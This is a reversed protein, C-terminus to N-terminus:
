VSALSSGMSASASSRAPAVDRALIRTTSSSCRIRRNTTRPSWASPYSTSEASLPVSPEALREVALVVQDDEVQEHGAEVTGRHQVPQHRLSGPLRHDDQAAQGGGRGLDAAQLRAGLVVQGLREGHVLQKSPHPGPQAGGRAPGGGAQDSTAQPEVQDPALRVAAGARRRQGLPFEQQQALEHPMRAPDHGLLPEQRRDPTVVEVRAGVDHVDVHAPEPGLEAGGRDSGHSTLPIADDDWSRPCWSSVEPQSSTAQATKATALRTAMTNTGCHSVTGKRNMQTLRVM